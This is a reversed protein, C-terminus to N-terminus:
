SLPGLLMPGLGLGVIFLSLGLTAVIRSCHFEKKIQAYTSTYISSTCTSTALTLMFEFSLAPVQDGYGGIGINPM